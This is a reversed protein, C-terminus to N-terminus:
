LQDAARLLDPNGSCYRRLAVKLKQRQVSAPVGLFEMTKAINPGGLNLLKSYITDIESSEIELAIRFAEDVSLSPVGRQLFSALWKELEQAKDRGITPDLSEDDCNEFLAKCAHLICGHEEEERAMEWWFDRIEPRDLFVHSFRFYIKGVLREIEAFRTLADFPESASM